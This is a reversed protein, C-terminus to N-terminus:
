EGAKEALLRELDAKAKEKNQRFANELTYNPRRGNTAHLDGHSSAEIAKAEAETLIEGGDGQYGDKYVWWGQRGKKGGNKATDAYEGTGFEEWYAQEMDNGIQAEGKEEDVINRYRGRLQSSYDEGKSCHRKAHSAIESSWTHLWAITTDNIEAKVQVSMDNYTFHAGM